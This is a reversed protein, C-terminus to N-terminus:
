KFCARYYQELATWTELSDRVPVGQHKSSEPVLVPLLDIQDVAIAGVVVEVEGPAFPRRSLDIARGTVPRQQEDMAEFVPGEFGDLTTPVRAKIADRRCRMLVSENMIWDDLLGVRRWASWLEGASLDSTSWWSFARYNQYAGTAFDALRLWRRATDSLAFIPDFAADDNTRNTWSVSRVLEGISSIRFIYESEVEAVGGQAGQAYAGVVTCLDLRDPFPMDYPHPAALALVRDRLTRLHDRTAPQRIADLDSRIAFIAEKTM